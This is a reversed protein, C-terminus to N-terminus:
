EGSANGEKGEASQSFVSEQAALLMQKKEENGRSVLTAHLKGNEEYEALKLAQIPNVSLIVTAPIDQDETSAGQNQQNSDSGKKTTVALVEVYALEPLQVAEKKGTDGGIAILSVIDGNQLKGSLGSALSKLSVSIAVKGEPLSYLYPNNFFPDTSIKTSLIYDGKKLGEIAYKGVVDEARKAVNGPLNYGGVTVKEIKDATVRQGAEIDKEVRVIVTQAKAAKNILPSLGFVILFALIICAVGITTRNKFRNLNLKPKPLAKKIPESKMTDDKTRQVKVTNRNESSIKEARKRFM